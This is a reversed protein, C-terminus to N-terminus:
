FRAVLRDLTDLILRQLIGANGYADGIARNVLEPSFSLNLAAGGRKFIGALDEDSWVIPIERVRGTLDPNLHLLYNRDSWVGVVVAFVGFDWLAKLDFAFRQREKVSLYHFDEIVLRRGSERILDAVFVLDNVDASVASSTTSNTTVGQVQARGTVKALLKIGVEGSAEVTGTLSSTATSTVELKVGLQGLAETYIQTLTKDLRCQVLLPDPILRQRLWSKGVKSAGNLALHAQRTLQRTIEGDLAGRDVYSAPLVAQSIGFVDSVQVPAHAM